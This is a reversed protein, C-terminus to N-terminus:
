RIDIKGWLIGIFSCRFRVRGVSSHYRAMLIALSPLAADAPTVAPEPLLVRRCPANSSFVETNSTCETRNKSETLVLPPKCYNLWATNGRETRLVHRCQAQLRLWAGTTASSSSAPASRRMGVPAPCNASCSVALACMRLIRPPVTGDERDQLAEDARHARAAGPRAAEM